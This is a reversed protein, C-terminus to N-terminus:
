LTIGGGVEVMDSIQKRTYKKSIPTNRLLLDGGVYTLKGLSEIPTDFLNLRWDVSILNGLDEIQTKMLFLSGGVSTLNGLSKIPTFRLDFDGDVSTLNGLSEIQSFSLDLFGKVEVLSGLSVIDKRESLGVDGDIIYPPNGRRNIFKQLLDWDNNFVSFQLKLIKEKVKNLQDETIIYKM